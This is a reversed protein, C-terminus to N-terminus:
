FAYHFGAAGDLFGLQLFYTGAFYAPAFWWRSLNRYKTRQRPTLAAWAADGRAMLDAHRKAEFSAYANPHALYRDPGQFRTPRDPRLELLLGNWGVCLGIGGWRTRGIEL